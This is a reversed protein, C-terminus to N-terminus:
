SHGEEQEPEQHGQKTGVVWLWYPGNDDALVTGEMTYLAVHSFGARRMMDTKADLSIPRFRGFKETILARDPDITIWVDEREGTEESTEHRELYFVGGKERWTRWNGGRGQTRPHHPNRDDFIFYGKHRLFRHVANVIKQNFFSREIWTVVDFADRYDLTTIDCVQFDVGVGRESATRKAEAIFTDSLDVATVQHGQAAWYIAHAGTGCALDLINLPRCAEIIRLISKAEQVQTEPDHFGWELYERDFDPDGYRHM